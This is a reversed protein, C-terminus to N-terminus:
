NKKNLNKYRMRLGPAEAAGSHESNIVTEPKYTLLFNFLDVEQEEPESTFGTSFGLCEAEMLPDDEEEMEKLDDDEDQKNEEVDEEEEDDNADEKDESSCGVAGRNPYDFLHRHNSFTLRKRQSFIKREKEKQTTDPTEEEDTSNHVLCGQDKHDEEEEESDRYDAEDADDENDNIEEGKELELEQKLEDDESMGKPDDKDEIAEYKVEKSEEESEEDEEEERHIREALEEPTPVDGYPEELIVSPYRCRRLPVM